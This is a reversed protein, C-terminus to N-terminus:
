PFVLLFVQEVFGTVVDWAVFQDLFCEFPQILIQPRHVLNRGLDTTWSHDRKFAIQNGRPVNAASIPNLCPRGIGAPITWTAVM